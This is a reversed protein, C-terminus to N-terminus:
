ISGTRILILIIYPVLYVTNLQNYCIFYLGSLFSSYDYGLEKKLVPRTRQRIKKFFLGLVNV